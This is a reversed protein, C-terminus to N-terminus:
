EMKKALLKKSNRYATAISRTDAVTIVSSVSEKSESIRKALERANPDALDNGYIGRHGPIKVLKM